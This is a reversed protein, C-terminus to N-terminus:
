SPYEGFEAFHLQKYQDNHDKEFKEIQDYPLATLQAWTKVNALSGTPAANAGPTTNTTTKGDNIFDLPKEAGPMAELITKTNAFDKDAMEIYSNRAAGTIQKATLLKEIEEKQANKLQTKAATADTKLSDLKQTVEADTATEPLGLQQRLLKADMTNNNNNNPQAPQHSGTFKATLRQSIDKVYMEVIKVDGSTDQNTIDIEEDYIKDVFGKALADAANMFTEADMMQQIEAESLTKTKAKYYAVADKQMDVMFDYDRKFDRYDGICVGQINHIMYKGNRAIHVEDFATTIGTAMSMAVYDIMAIKRVGKAQKLLNYIGGGTFVSGGFCNIRCIFTWGDRELQLLKIALDTVDYNFQYIDDYLFTTCTKKNPDDVFKFAM